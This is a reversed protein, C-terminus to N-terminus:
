RNDPGPPSADLGLPSSIESGAVRLRDAIAEDSLASEAMAVAVVARVTGGGDRIPVAVSRRAGFLLLWHGSGVGAASEELRSVCTEGRLVAAVIGLGDRTLPVSRTAETFDRRVKHDFNPAAAFAVLELTAGSLRWFGAARALLDQRLTEVRALPTDDNAIM